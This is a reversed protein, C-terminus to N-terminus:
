QTKITFNDASIMNILADFNYGPNITLKDILDNNLSKILGINYVRTDGLAVYGIREFKYLVWKSDIITIYFKTLMKQGTRNTQLIYTGPGPVINNVSVTPTECYSPINENILPVYSYNKIIALIIDDTATLAGAGESIYTRVELNSLIHIETAVKGNGNNVISSRIIFNPIVNNVPVNTSTMTFLYYAYRINNVTTNIIRFGDIFPKTNDGFIITKNNNDDDDIMPAMYDILEGFQAQTPIKGTEFYQKLQSKTAM